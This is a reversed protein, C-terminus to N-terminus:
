EFFRVESGVRLRGDNQNLRVPLPQLHLRPMLKVFRMAVHDCGLVPDRRASAARSPIDKAFRGLVVDEVPQPPIFEADGRRAHYGDLTFWGVAFQFNSLDSGEPHFRRSSWRLLFVCVGAVVLLLSPKPM